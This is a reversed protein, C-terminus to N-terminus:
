IGLYKTSYRLHELVAEVSMGFHAEIAPEWTKPMVERAREMGYARYYSGPLVIVWPHTQMPAILVNIVATKGSNFSRNLARVLQEPRTVLESHVDELCGFMEHYKVDQQLRNDGAVKSYMWEYTGGMWESNNWIISVVPM